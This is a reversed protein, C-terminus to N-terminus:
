SLQPQAHPAALELRGLFLVPQFTPVTENIEAFRQWAKSAPAKTSQSSEVM